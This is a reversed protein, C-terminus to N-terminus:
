TLLLEDLGDPHYGGPDLWALIATRLLERSEAADEALRQQTVEGGHVIKSRTGYLRKIQRFLEVREETTQRLVKAARISLRYTIESTAGGAFLAELASWCDVIVDEARSREDADNFRRIAFRLTADNSRDVAAFRARVLEIDPLESPPGLALATSVVTRGMRVAKRLTAPLIFAPPRAEIVHAAATLGTMETLRLAALFLEARDFAATFDVAGDRSLEVVQRLAVNAPQLREVAGWPASFTYDFARRVDRHERILVLDTRNDIEVRPQALELRHIPTMVVAPFSAFGAFDRLRELLAEAPGQELERLHNVADRYESLWRAMFGVAYGEPVPEDGVFGVARRAESSAEMAAELEVLEPMRPDTDHVIIDIADDVAVFRNEGIIREAAARVAAILREVRPSQRVAV